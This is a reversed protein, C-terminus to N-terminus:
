RENEYISHLATTNGLQQHDPLVILIDLWSPVTRKDFHNEQQIVFEDSTKVLKNERIKEFFKKETQATSFSFIFMYGTRSM